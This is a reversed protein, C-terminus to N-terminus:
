PDGEGEDDDGEVIEDEVLELVHTLRVRGRMISVRGM